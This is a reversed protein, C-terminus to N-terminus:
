GKSADRKFEEITILPKGGLEIMPQLLEKKCNSVTGMSLNTEEALTETSKWCIGREGAAAKIARYVERANASIKVRQGNKNLYTLKSIISPSFTFWYPEASEFEVIFTNNQNEQNEITMQM